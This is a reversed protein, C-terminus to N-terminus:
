PAPAIDLLAGIQKLRDAYRQGVHRPSFDANGVDLPKPNAIIEAMLEAAHAVDPDAWTQGESHFYEGPQVAREGFRVLAVRRPDCYDLNGSHGTAIVQKDLLLAEAIGRGFGEARHLSVVCDCAKYLALVEPRRLTESVITIRPDSDALKKLRRWEPNRTRVHSAKIVLGVREKANQPFAQQFADIVATSPISVTGSAAGFDIDVSGAADIRIEVPM